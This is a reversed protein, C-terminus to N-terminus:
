ILVQGGLYTGTGGSMANNGADLIIASTALAGKVFNADSTVQSLTIVSGNSIAVAYNPNAATSTCDVGEIVGTTNNARIASSGQASINMNGAKIRVKSDDFRIANIYFSTSIQQNFEYSNGAPMILEGQGRFDTEFNYIFITKGHGRAYSYENIWDVLDALSGLPNGSNGAFFSTSSSAPTVGATGIYVTNFDKTATSKHHVKINKETLYSGDYSHTVDLDLDFNQVNETIRFDHTTNNQLENRQITSSQLQLIDVGIGVGAMNMYNHECTVGSINTFGQSYSNPIGFQVHSDTNGELYNQQISISYAREYLDVWLSGDYTLPTQGNADDNFNSIVIATKVNAEIVNHDVTISHMPCYLYIGYDGEEISNREVRLANVQYWNKNQWFVYGLEVDLVDAKVAVTNGRFTNDLVSLGWTANVGVGTKCNMIRNKQVFCDVAYRGRIGVNTGDGRVSLYEIVTGQMLRYDSSNPLSPNNAFNIDIDIGIAASTIINAPYTTPEPETETEVYDGVLKIRKRIVITDTCLYSGDIIITSGMLSNDIAQQVEASNNLVGAADSAGWWRVSRGGTFQRVWGNFVTGNDNEASRTADYVFLGGRNVDTVVVSFVGSPVNAFGSVSSIEYPFGTRILDYFAPLDTELQDGVVSVIVEGAGVSAPIGYTTQNNPNFIYQKAADITEGPLGYMVANDPVNLSRAISKLEGQAVAVWKGQEPAAVPDGGTPTYPLIQNTRWLADEHGVVSKSTYVQNESTIQVKVVDAFDGVIQYGAGSIAISIKDDTLQELGALTKRPQGKRNIVELETSNAINDFTILNDKAVALSTTGVPPSSPRPDDYAM